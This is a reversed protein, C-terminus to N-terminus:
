LPMALFCNFSIFPAQASQFSDTFNPKVIACSVIAFYQLYFTKVVLFVLIEVPFVLKKVFTVRFRYPAYFTKRMILKTFVCVEATHRM